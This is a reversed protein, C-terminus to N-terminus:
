WESWSTGDSVDMGVAEKAKEVSERIKAEREGADLTSPLKPSSFVILLLYFAQTDTFVKPVYSSTSGFTIIFSTGKGLQRLVM